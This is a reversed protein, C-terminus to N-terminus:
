FLEAVDKHVSIGQNDFPQGQVIFNEPLGLTQIEIPFRFKLWSKKNRRPEYPKYHSCRQVLSFPVDFVILGLRGKGGGVDRWEM